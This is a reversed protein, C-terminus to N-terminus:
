AAGDSEDIRAVFEGSNRTIEVTVCIDATLV